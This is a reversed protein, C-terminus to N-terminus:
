EDHDDSLLQINVQQQRDCCHFRVDNLSSDDLGYQYEEVKTQIGCIGGDGCEQSWGGYEGWATSPSELTPNSSCRFKVNNVATDDGFLGRHPEVRVQFSSLVGGPCYQPQSWDGFYGTHSEVSYLFSRKDDQACILRIGNLATDDGGYQNSEVRLSFGVAFFKDPCMEPWTWNGFREGNSVTLVSRYERSSFAEGARQLFVKEESCAGSLAALVAVATFFLSQM